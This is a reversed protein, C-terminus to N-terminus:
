EVVSVLETKRWKWAPVGREWLEDIEIYTRGKTEPIQCWIYAVAFVLVSGFVFAIKGGLNGQDPNIAYPLAFGWICASLGNTMTALAQSQVRLSSSTNESIIPWAVSGITAQYVIPKHTNNDPFSFTLLKGFSWIGMFGVQAWIASSSKICAAIGIVFLSICLTGTGWLATDRRGFREVLFAGFLNGVVMVGSMGVSADFAKATSLGGLQM